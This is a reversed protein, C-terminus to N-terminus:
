GKPSTAGPPCTPTVGLLRDFGAMQLVLLVRASPQCFIMSGGLRQQRRQALLLVRLGSSSLYTVHTLDVIITGPHDRQLALLQAELAPATLADIRGTPALVGPANEVPSANM